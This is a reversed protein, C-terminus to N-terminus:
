PCAAPASFPYPEGKFGQVIQFIDTFNLVVNPAEGDIDVWTLHPANPDDTFKQVAAMVDDMNVVLNPAAWADGELAGVCDAWYKPTPQAITAIELPDSFAAGDATASLLYTAVAVIECDGLHVVAPWSDSYCATPVVRAIWVGPDEPAEFPAGVWGLVGLDDPFYASGTMEVQFAVTNGTNNPDFSLYRNKRVQHVPDSPLGPPDVASSASGFVWFGGRVTYDGGSMTGADGQGITGGASYDGGTAAVTGGGDITYWTVEYPQGFASEAFMAVVLLLPAIWTRHAKGVVVGRDRSGMIGQEKEKTGEDSRGKTGTKM